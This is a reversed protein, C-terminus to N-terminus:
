GSRSTPPGTRLEDPRFLALYYAAMAWHFPGVVMLVAIGLHMLLGFGGYVWRLDFRALARRVLGASAPAPRGLILSLLLLPWSVEFTWVAVTALESLAYPLPHALWQMDFRSWAPMQLINYLASRDWPMWSASVKQIGAMTYILTLQFVLVYRPWAAVPQESTWAGTKLRCRLSATASADCLVLLWLVNTMLPDYSGSAHPHLMRLAVLGQGAVLAAIRHQWGVLVALGAVCTAALTAWVASPTPGGLMRVFWPLLESRRTHIGGHELGFWAFEPVGAVIASGVNVLVALGVAIRVAALTDGREVKSCRAVWRSWPGSRKPTSM